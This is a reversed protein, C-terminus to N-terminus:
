GVVIVVTNEPDYKKGRYTKVAVNVFIGRKNQHRNIQSIVQYVESKTVYYRRLKLLGMFSGNRNRTMEGSLREPSSVEKEASM